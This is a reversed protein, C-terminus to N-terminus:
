AKEEREQELEVHLTEIAQKCKILLIDRASPGGQHINNANSFSATFGGAVNSFASGQVLKRYDAQQHTGHSTSDFDDLHSNNSTDDLRMHESSKMNHMMPNSYQRKKKRKVGHGEGDTTM